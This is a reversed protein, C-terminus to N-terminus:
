PLKTLRVELRYGMARAYKQLTLLSPSHRSNASELRAIASQTTGIRKAIEAQTFGSEARAKLIADLIVFDDASDEYARRVDERKFAEQKFKKLTDSM